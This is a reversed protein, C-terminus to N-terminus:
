DLRPVDPALDAGAQRREGDLRLRRPVSRGSGDIADASLALGGLVVVFLACLAMAALMVAMCIALQAAAADPTDTM